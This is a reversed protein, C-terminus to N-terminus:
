MLVECNVVLTGGDVHRDGVHVRARRDLILEQQYALAPDGLPPVWIAPAGVPVEIEM